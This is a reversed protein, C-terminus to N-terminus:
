EKVQINQNINEGSAFQCIQPKYMIIPRGSLSLTKLDENELIIRCIEKNTDSDFHNPNMELSKSFDEFAKRFDEKNSYTMGRNFVYGYYKENLRIAENYDEIAKNYEGKISWINGRDNFYASKGPELRIAESYDDIAENFKRINHQIVGRDAWNRSNNPELRIVENLDNIAENARGMNNLLHGRNLWALVYSSDIKIAESFADFAQRNDKRMLCIIGKNHWVYALGDDMDIAKNICAFSENYSEGFSVPSKYEQISLAKAKEACADVKDRQIMKQYREDNSFCISDKLIKIVNERDSNSVLYEINQPFDFRIKTRDCGTIEKEKMYEGIVDQIRMGIKKEVKKLFVEDTNSSIKVKLM